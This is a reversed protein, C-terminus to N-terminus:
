TPTAYLGTHHFWGLIDAPTVEGLAVRVTQEM